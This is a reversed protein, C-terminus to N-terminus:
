HGADAAHAGADLACAGGTATRQPLAAISPICSLDLPAGGCGCLSLGVATGSCDSSPVVCRGTATCGAGLTYLCALGTECESSDTCSAGSPASGACSAAASVAATVIAAVAVQPAKMAPSVLRVSPRRPALRRKQVHLARQVM